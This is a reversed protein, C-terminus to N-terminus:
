TPPSQRTKFCVHKHVLLCSCFCNGLIGECELCCHVNSDHRICVGASVQDGILMDDACDVYHVLNHQLAFEELAKNVHAIGPSLGNPWPYTGDPGPTSEAACPLIGVLLVNSDPNVHQLHSVM